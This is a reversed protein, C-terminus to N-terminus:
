DSVETDTGDSSSHHISSSMRSQDRGIKPRSITRVKVNVKSLCEFTEEGEPWEVYCLLVGQLCLILFLILLCERDNFFLFFFYNSKRTSKLYLVLMKKIYALQLKLLLKM